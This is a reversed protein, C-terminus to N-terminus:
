SICYLLVIISVSLLSDNYMNHMIETGFYLIELYLAKIRPQPPCFFLFETLM